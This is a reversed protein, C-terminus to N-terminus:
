SRALVKPDGTFWASAIVLHRIRWFRIDKVLSAEYWNMMRCRRSKDSNLVHTADVLARLEAQSGNLKARGNTIVHSTTQTLASAVLFRVIADGGVIPPFALGMERGCPGFDVVADESFASELLRGDALDEGAGFRYLADMVELHDQASPTPHEDIEM